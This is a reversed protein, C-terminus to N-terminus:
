ATKTSRPPSLPSSPRLPKLSPTLQYTRAHPTRPYSSPAHCRTSLHLIAMTCVHVNCTCLASVDMHLVYRVQTSAPSLRSLTLLFPSIPPPPCSLMSPAIWPGCPTSESAAFQPSLFSALPKRWVLSPEAPVVDSVDSRDSGDSLM